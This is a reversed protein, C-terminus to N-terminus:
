RIGVSSEVIGTISRGFISAWTLARTVGGGGGGAILVVGVLVDGIPIGFSSM